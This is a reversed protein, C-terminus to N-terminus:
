RQVGGLFLRRGRNDTAAAEEVAKNRAWDVHRELELHNRFTRSMGQPDTVSLLVFSGADLGTELADKVKTYYAAWTTFAM